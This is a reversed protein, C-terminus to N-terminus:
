NNLFDTVAQRPVIIRRGINVSHIAGSKILGYATPRSVGIQEAVEEVTLTLRNNGSPYSQTQSTSNDLHATVGPIIQDLLQSIAQNAAEQAIRRVDTENYLRAATTDFSTKTITKQNTEKM